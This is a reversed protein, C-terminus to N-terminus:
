LKAPSVASMRLRARAGRGRFFNRPALRVCALPLSRLRVFRMPSVPPRAYESATEEGREAEIQSLTPTLHRPKDKMEGERCFFERGYLPLLSRFRAFASKQDTQLKLKPTERTSTLKRAQHKELCAKGEARTTLQRSAASM